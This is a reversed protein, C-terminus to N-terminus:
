APMGQQQNTLLRFEVLFENLYGYMLRDLEWGNLGALNAAGLLFEEQAKYNSTEIGLESLISKIRADVAISDRFYPHYVDMMMNRAYKDGIGPFNYLYSIMSGRDTLSLLEAKVKKYGGSKEIKDFCGCIYGAKMDPMRVKAQHCIRKVHNLRGLRTKIQQLREYRLENYNEPTGILGLWGSSRGMTAFSQLLYHWVFDERELSSARLKLHEIRGRHWSMVLKAVQALLEQKTNMNSRM